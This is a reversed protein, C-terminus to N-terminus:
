PLPRELMIAVTFWILAPMGVVGLVLWLARREHALWMLALAMVPATWVFGLRTMLVLGGVLVAAFAIARGWHLNGPRADGVPRWVLALGCLVLVVALVRPLTRPRLWGYEVTEAQWPVIVAYLVVGFLIFFLGTYRDTAM